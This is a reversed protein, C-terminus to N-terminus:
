MMEALAGRVVFVGHDGAVLAVQGLEIHLVDLVALAHCLLRSLNEVAPEVLLGLLRDVAVKTGSHLIKGRVYGNILNPRLRLVLSSM